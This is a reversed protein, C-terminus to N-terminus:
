PTPQAIWGDRMAVLVAETRSNVDMKSFINSLHTQVTRESIVLERAIEKNSYGRLLAKMVDMERRTLRQHIDKKSEPQLDTDNYVTRHNYRELRSLLEDDIADRNTRASRITKVLESAAASKLVYGSAGAKLMEAITADDESATLGIILVDPMTAKIRRTAEIGTMIPMHVDMLVVHPRLGNQVREVAEVGNSAEGVIVIDEEMELLSRMGQRVLMHDDALFVRTTRM